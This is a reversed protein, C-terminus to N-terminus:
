NDTGQFRDEDIADKVADEPRLEPEQKDPPHLEPKQKVPKAEPKQPEEAM